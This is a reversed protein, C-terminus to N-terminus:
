LELIEHNKKLNLMIFDNFFIIIMKNQDKQAHPLM